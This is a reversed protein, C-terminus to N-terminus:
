NHEYLLNGHNDNPNDIQLRLDIELEFGTKIKNLLLYRSPHVANAKKGFRFQPGNIILQHLLRFKIGDIEGYNENIEKIFSQGKLLLDFCTPCFLSSSDHKEFLKECEPLPIQTYFCSTLTDYSVTM